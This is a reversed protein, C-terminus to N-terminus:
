SLEERYQSEKFGILVKDDLVLLPRKVLMGDSALLAFIEQDSMLPLRNKVDLSRYLLGSTNFLKKLELGSKKHYQILEEVSPAEKKIDRYTYAFGLRDLFAIAKACTSCKPYCLITMRVEM